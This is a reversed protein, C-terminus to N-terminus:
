CNAVNIKDEMLEEKKQQQYMESYTISMLLSWESVEAHMNVLIWYSKYNKFIM